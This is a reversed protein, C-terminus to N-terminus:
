DEEVPSNEDFEGGGEASEESEGEEAAEEGEILADEGEEETDYGEETTFIKEKEKVKVDQEEEDEPPPPPLNTEKYQKPATGASKSCKPYKAKSDEEVIKLLEVYFSWGAEPDFFYLIKQHPDEIFPAIKSKAMQKKGPAARLTIEEGKRWYDDSIFFSAEKSNDFGIAHQIANHFEEFTQTSRIEIERYIDEQDEFTVKFRYVAM